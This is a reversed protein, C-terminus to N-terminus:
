CKFDVACHSMLHACACPTDSAAHCRGRGCSNNLWAKCVKHHCTLESIFVLYRFSFCVSEEPSSLIRTINIKNVREGSRLRLAVGALWARTLPKIRIDCFRLVGLTYISAGMKRVWFFIDSFTVTEIKDVIMYRTIKPPIFKRPELNRPEQRNCKCEGNALM